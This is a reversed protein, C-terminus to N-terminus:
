TFGFVLCAVVCDDPLYFAHAAHFLRLQAGFDLEHRVLLLLPCTRRDRHAELHRERGGAEFHAVKFHKLGLEVVGVVLGDFPHSVDAATAKVLGSTLEKVGMRERNIIIFKM